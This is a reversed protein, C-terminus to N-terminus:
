LAEQGVELGLWINKRFGRECFSGDARRIAAKYRTGGGVPVVVGGGNSGGGVVIGTSSAQTTYLKTITGGCPADASSTLLVIAVMIGVISGIIGLVTLIVGLGTIGYSDRLRM